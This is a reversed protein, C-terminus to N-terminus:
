TEFKCLGPLEETHRLCLRVGVITLNGRSYFSTRLGRHTLRSAMLFLVNLIFVRQLLVKSEWM